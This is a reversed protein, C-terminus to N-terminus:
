DRTNKFLTRIIFNHNRLVVNIPHCYHSSSDFAHHIKMKTEPTPEPTSGQLFTLVSSTQNRNQKERKAINKQRVKQDYLNQLHKAM